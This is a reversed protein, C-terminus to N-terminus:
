IILEWYSSGLCVRCSKMEFKHVDFTHYIKLEGFRTCKEILHLM